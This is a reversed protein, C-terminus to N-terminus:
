PLKMACHAVSASLGSNREPLARGSDLKALFTKPNNANGTIPEATSQEVAPSPANPWIRQTRVL